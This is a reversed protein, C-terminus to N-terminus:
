VVAETVDTIQVILKYGRDVVQFGGHTTLLELGEKITEDSVVFPTRGLAKMMIQEANTAILNHEITKKKTEDCIGPTYTTLKVTFAYIPVIIM